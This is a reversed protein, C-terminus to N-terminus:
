QIKNKWPRSREKLLHAIEKVLHGPLKFHRPLVRIQLTERLGHAIRLELHIGQTSKLLLRQHRLALEQVRETAPWAAAELDLRLQSRQLHESDALSLARSSGM